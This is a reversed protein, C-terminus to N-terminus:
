PVHVNIKKSLANLIYNKADNVSYSNVNEPIVLREVLLQIAFDTETDPIGYIKNAVLEAIKKNEM